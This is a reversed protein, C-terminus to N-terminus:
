DSFFRVPMSHRSSVEYGKMTAPKFRPLKRVERKVAEGMRPHSSRVVRIDGIRGEQDIVFTVFVKGDVGKKRLKEPYEVRDQLFEKVRSSTCELQKEKNEHEECGPFLAYTALKHMEVPKDEPRHDPVNMQPEDEGKMSGIELEKPDPTEINPEQEKKQDVEKVLSPDTAREKNQGSSEEKPEPKEPAKQVRPLIVEREEEWGKLEKKKESSVGYSFAMLVISLALLAGSLLFPTRPIPRSKQTRM